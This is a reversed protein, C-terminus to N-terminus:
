LLSHVVIFSSMKVSGDKQNAHATLGTFDLNSHQTPLPSCHWKSACNPRICERWVDSLLLLPLIYCACVEQSEGKLCKACFIFEEALEGDSEYHQSPIAKDGEAEECLKM